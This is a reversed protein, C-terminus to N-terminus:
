KGKTKKVVKKKIPPTQTFLNALTPTGSKSPILGAFGKSSKKTAM